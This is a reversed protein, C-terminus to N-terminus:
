AHTRSLIGLERAYNRANEVCAWAWDYDGIDLWESAFWLDLLVCSSTSRRAENNNAWDKVRERLVDIYRRILQVRYPM